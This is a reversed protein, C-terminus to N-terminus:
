RMHWSSLIRCYAQYREPFIRGEQLAARVACREEQIHMCQPLHCHPILPQFEKFGYGIEKKDYCRLDYEQLGPTDIICTTDDSCITRALSTTHKGRRSKVSVSGVAQASDSALLNILSSKGVGSQGLFVSLSNYLYQPLSDFANKVASTFFISYGLKELIALHASKSEDKPLDDKNLVIAASIEEIEAMVLIRNIFGASYRPYGNCAIVLVNDVNAAITQIGQKTRNWRIIQTQRQLREVIRSGGVEVSVLVRDGSCIGESAALRKGKLTINNHINGMNDRVTFINNAGWLVSGEIIM